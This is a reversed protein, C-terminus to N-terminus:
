FLLKLINTRSPLSCRPPSFPYWSTLPSPLCHNLVVCARLQYTIGTDALEQGLQALYNEIEKAKM